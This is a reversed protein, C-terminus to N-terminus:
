QVSNKNNKAPYDNAFRKLIELIAGEKTISQGKLLYEAQLLTIAKNHTETMKRLTISKAM